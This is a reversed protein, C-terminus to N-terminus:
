NSLHNGSDLYKSPVSIRGLIGEDLDLKEDSPFERDIRYHPIM